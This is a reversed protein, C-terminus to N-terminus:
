DGSFERKQEHGIGGQGQWALPAILLRYTDISKPGLPDLSLRYSGPRQHAVDKIKPQRPLPTVPLTVRIVSRRMSQNM